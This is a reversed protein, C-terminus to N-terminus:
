QASEVLQKIWSGSPIGKEKVQEETIVNGTDKTAQHGWQMPRIKPTLVEAVKEDDSKKVESLQATLTAIKEDREKAQAQLETIVKQLGDLNFLAKLDDIAKESPVAPTAEKHEVGMEELAKSMEAPHAELQKVAEEGLRKVLYAKKKEDFMTSEKRMIELDTYPNAAVEPPLDSGEFSRYRNITGEKANRELVYFGHSMAITEGEDFGKAEQETLPWLYCMFGDSYDWWTARSKRATGPTHWCWLEPAENPHADLYANFEKHAAETIIEGQPHKAYDRDRFNNTPYGFAYFQGDTGKLVKMECAAGQRKAIDHVTQMDALDAGSHRAGAKTFAEWQQRLWEVFSTKEKGEGQANTLMTRAREQLSTMKDKPIDAQPIRAIANRLHPLDLKGSGDKIPFMRLSRPVTKGGEDKEGGPKVYLFSSDPFNNITATDWEAKEEAELEPIPEAEKMLPSPDNLLKQLEKAAAGIAAAKDEVMDSALINRTVTQFLDAAYSVANAKEEADMAALVDALTTAGGYPMMPMAMAPQMGWDDKQEPETQAEVPIPLGGVDDIELDEIREALAQAELEAKQQATQLIHLKAQKAKRAQRAKTTM